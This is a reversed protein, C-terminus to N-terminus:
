KGICASEDKVKEREPTIPPTTSPVAQEIRKRRFSMSILITLIMLGIILQLSVVMRVLTSNPLIDGYGVTTQTIVSFYFFDWYSWVQTNPSQLRAILEQQDKTSTELEGIRSHLYSRFSVPNNAQKALDLFETGLIDGKGRFGMARFEFGGEADPDKQMSISYRYDATSIEVSYGKEDPTVTESYPKALLIKFLEIRSKMTSVKNEIPSTFPSAQAKAVDSNFLFNRPNAKFIAYYIGAFVFFFVAYITFCTILWLNRNERLMRLRM